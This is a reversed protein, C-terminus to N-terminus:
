RLLDTAYAQEKELQAIREMSRDGEPKGCEKALLRKVCDNRLTLERGNVEAYKQEACPKFSGRSGM